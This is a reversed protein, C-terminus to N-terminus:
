LGRCSLLRVKADFSNHGSGTTNGFPMIQPASWQLHDICTLLKSPTICFSHWDQLSLCM